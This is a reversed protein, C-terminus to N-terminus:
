PAVTAMILWDCGLVLVWCTRGVTLTVHDAARVGAIQTTEGGLTITATRGSVSKIEGQRWVYNRDDMGGKRAGGILADAISRRDM